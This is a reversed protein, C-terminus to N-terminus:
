YGEVGTDPIFRGQPLRHVKTDMTGDTNLTLYRWGPGAIDLSFNHSFPEFQISTSPTSIYRIGQLVKDFEQHVHGCLVARVNPMRKVFANFEDQNHMTQTDLWRSHVLQPLHHVCVLTHLEPHADCCEKLFNLESRQIWGHPVAYVESNLFVFQWRGCIMHRQTHVGLSAFMRYMLPSDDHNGPVFFVPAHLLEIMHAFRQYSEPSYDQSIDGTVLIFDFPMGQNVISELVAKFSEATRVGLLSGTEEAFLHIDTLQLVSIQGSDCGPKLLATEM